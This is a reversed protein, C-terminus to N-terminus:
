HTKTIGPYQDLDDEDLITIKDTGKGRMWGMLQGNDEYVWLRRERDNVTVKFSHWNPKSRDPGTYEIFYGLWQGFQFFHEGPIIGFPKTEASGAESLAGRINEIQKKVLNLYVNVDFNPHNYAAEANKYEESGDNKLAERSLPSRHLIDVYEDEEEKAQRYAKWYETEAQAGAIRSYEAEAAALAENDEAKRAMFRDRFASRKLKELQAYEDYNNHQKFEETEYVRPRFSGPGQGKEDRNVFTQLAEHFDVAANIAPDTVTSFTRQTGLDFAGLDLITKISARMDVLRDLFNTFSPEINGLDFPYKVAIENDEYFDKFTKM